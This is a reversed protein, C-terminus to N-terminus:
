SLVRITKSWGQLLGSLKKREGNSGNLLHYHGCVSGVMGMREGHNRNQFIIFLIKNIIWPHEIKSRIIQGDFWVDWV